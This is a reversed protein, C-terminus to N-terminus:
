KNYDVMNRWASIKQTREQWNNTYDHHFSFSSLRWNEFNGEPVIKIFATVDNFASTAITTIIQNNLITYVGDNRPHLIGPMTNNHQHARIAGCVKKRNNDNYLKFIEAALLEGVMLGRNNNCSTFDNKMFANFDNWLFGIDFPIMNKLNKPQFFQSCNKEIKLADFDLTYSPPLELKEITELCFSQNSNLLKKPNYRMELGGHCCQVFCEDNGAFCAVPLINYFHVIDKILTDFTVSNETKPQAEYFLKLQQYFHHLPSENEYYSQANMNIDEHNGRLLFVKGANACALTCLVMIVDPGHQGRDVMDGLFFFYCNPKIIKFNNDIIKDQYLKYLCTCLSRIDGHLDGWFYLSDQEAERWLLYSRRSPSTTTFKFVYPEISHANFNQLNIQKNIWPGSNLIKKQETIYKELNEVFNHYPVIPARLELPYYNKSATYWEQVTVPTAFLQTIFFLVLILYIRGAVIVGKHEEM